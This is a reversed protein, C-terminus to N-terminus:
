LINRRLFALIKIRITENTKESVGVVQRAPLKGGGDSHIEALEENSITSGGSTYPKREGTAEIIIAGDSSISHKISKLLQGSITLNSKGKGFNTGKGVKKALAARRKIYLDKPGRSLPAYSELTEPNKGLRSSGVSNKVAFEGIEDLLKKSSLADELKKTLAKEADKTFVKAKAM